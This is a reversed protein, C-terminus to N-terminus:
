VGVTQHDRSSFPTSQRSTDWLFFGLCGFFIWTVIMLISRTTGIHLSLPHHGWQICMLAALLCVTGVISFIQPSHTAFSACRRLITHSLRRYWPLDYCHTHTPLQLRDAPARLAVLALIAGFIHFILSSTFLTHSLRTTFSHVHEFNFTAYLIPAQIGAVLGLIISLTNTNFLSSELVKRTSPGAEMFSAAETESKAFYPLSAQSGFRMSDRTSRLSMTESLSPGDYEMEIFVRMLVRGESSGSSSSFSEVSSVNSSVDSGESFYEIAEYLDDDSVIDMIEGEDDKYKVVYRVASLAFSQEIKDKLLGYSIRSSAFTIRKSSRHFTCKVVLPSGSSERQQIISMQINDM